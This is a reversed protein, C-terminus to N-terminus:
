ITIIRLAGVLSQFEQDVRNKHNLIQVQLYLLGAILALRIIIGGAFLVAAVPGGTLAASLAVRNMMHATEVALSVTEALLTLTQGLSAGIAQFIYTGFAATRRFNALARSNAVEIAQDIEKQKQDLREQKVEANTMEQKLVNVQEEWAFALASQEDMVQALVDARTQVKELNVDQVVLRRAAQDIKFITEDAKSDVEIAKQLTKSVLVEAKSFDLSIDIISTTSSM